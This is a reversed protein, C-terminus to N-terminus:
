DQEGHTQGTSASEPPTSADRLFMPPMHSGAVPPQATVPRLQPYLRFLEDLSPQKRPNM